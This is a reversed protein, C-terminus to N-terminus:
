GTETVDYRSNEGCVSVIKGPACGGNKPARCHGVISAHSFRSQPLCTGACMSVRVASKETGAARDALMKLRASDLNCGNLFVCIQNKSELKLKSDCRNGIDQGADSSISTAGGDGTRGRGGCSSLLPPAPWASDSASLISVADSASTSLCNSLDVPM